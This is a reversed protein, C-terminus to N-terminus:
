RLDIVARGSLTGQEMEHFIASLENMRRLQIHSKVVGRAAMEVAEQANIRDGVKVGLISLQRSVIVPITASEIPRYEGEPVGLCVLTGATDLYHIAQAYAAYSSSCVLAARPGTGWAVERVAKILAAGQSDGGSIDVGVFHDAGAAEVCLAEKSPLDLAIVRCGMAKAYQIALNGLGGGAGSIAVWDGHRLNASKLGSYVTVGACMIPALGPLAEDSIGNPLITIYTADTVCYQQFTGPHFAGSFKALKCNSEKGLLCYRCSLCAFAVHKIGVRAGIRPQVVGPGQAIVEGVGEHGGVQRSVLLSGYYRGKPVTGSAKWANTCLALDTHCVGSFLLRVLVENPGPAQIPLEVLETACTGPESYIIAKYVKNQLAEM